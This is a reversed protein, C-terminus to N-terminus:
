QKWESIIWERALPNRDLFERATCIEILHKEAESMEENTLNPKFRKITKSFGWVDKAGVQLDVWGWENPFDKKLNPLCKAYQRIVLCTGFINEKLEVNIEGPSKTMDKESLWFKASERFFHPASFWQYSIIKEGVKSSTVRRRESWNSNLEIQEKQIKGVGHSVFPKYIRGSGRIWKLVCRSESWYVTRNISIELEEKILQSLRRAM